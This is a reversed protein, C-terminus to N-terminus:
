ELVEFVVGNLEEVEAVVRAFKFVQCPGVWFLRGLEAVLQVLPTSAYGRRHRSFALLGHSLEAHVGLRANEVLRTCGPQLGSRCAIGEKEGEPRQSWSKSRRRIASSSAGRVLVRCSCPSRVPITPM